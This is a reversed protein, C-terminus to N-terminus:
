IDRRATFICLAGIKPFTFTSTGMIGLNIASLYCKSTCSSLVPFSKIFKEPYFRIFHFECKLLSFGYKKYENMILGLIQYSLILPLSIQLIKLVGFWIM